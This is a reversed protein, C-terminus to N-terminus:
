ESYMIYSSLPAALFKNGQIIEFAETGARQGNAVVFWINSPINIEVPYKNANFTVLINKWMDDNANDKLIFSVTNKPNNNIFELNEKVAEFSNMRFAPHEKRIKILGKFYVFVDYFEAKRNWDVWNINDPSNYSNEVGKKTRCFEVGADIFPIGQSTFVITHAMKIMSKRMELSDDKNSKELKDWLAANDHCSVYNVSQEPNVFPGWIEDSYHISGSVAKRIENEMGERGSVFGREYANFVPGKVSDRIIDNFYSIHPTKFANFTTTKYEGSLTTNLDWGEGYVMINGYIKYLSDKIHNMTDIDLLGMLDFRFGNIHYEKAWYLVSDLIFKRVMKRETAVDNGCGSGNSYTGDETTRFYYDPFVKQLNDTPLSYVHNYVVDMNVLIGNSHFNQVMQKMERIRCYPDYPNTSYSGEPVNYNQPDYGWNYKEPNKEDVSEFSFDFAPLIQVHTVGLEKIHNLATSIHKSSKTNEECLGLYLGKHHVSSDTHKSIDRISTEYIIAETLNRQKPFIYHEFDPPNTKFM